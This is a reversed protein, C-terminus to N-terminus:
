SDIQLVEIKELTPDALAKAVYKKMTRRTVPTSMTLSVWGPHMDSSGPGYYFKCIWKRARLARIEFPKYYRGSIHSM